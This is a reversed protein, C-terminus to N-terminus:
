ITWEPTRVLRPTTEREYLSRGLPCSAPSSPPLKSGNGRRKKSSREPRGHSDATSQGATTTRCAGSPRSSGEQELKLLSPYLTGHNISLPHDSTQEVRRAIGYGRLPGMMELTKLVLLALTGRWVDPTDSM